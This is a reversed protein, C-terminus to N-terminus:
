RATAREPVREHQRGLVLVGLGPRLHDVGERVGETAPRGLLEDEVLGGGAGAVVDLLRGGHRPGHDGLVAHAGPEARYLVAAVLGLREEAAVHAGPRVVGLGDGGVDVRLDAGQDLGRVVLRPLDQDLVPADEVLEHELQHLLLGEGLLVHGADARRDGLARREGRVVAEALAGRRVLRRHQGGRLLGGLVPVAVDAVAAGSHPVHPGGRLPSRARSSVWSCPLAAFAGSSRWRPPRTLSIGASGSSRSSRVGRVPTSWARAAAATRSSSSATPSSGSRGPSCPVGSRTARAYASVKAPRHCSGASTRAVGKSSSWSSITRTFSMGIYEVQSCWRTGKWPTACM